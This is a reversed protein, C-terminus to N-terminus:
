PKRLSGTAFAALQTTESAELVRDGERFGVWGGRCGSESKSEQTYREILLGESRSSCLRLLFCVHLRLLTLAALHDIDSPETVDLSCEIQLFVSTFTVCRVRLSSRTGGVKDALM